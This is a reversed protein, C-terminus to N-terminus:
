MPGMVDPGDPRGPARWWASAPCPLAPCPLAPCPLANALRPMPMAHCPLAHCPMARCESCAAAREGHGRGDALPVQPPANAAAQDRLAGPTCMPNCGPTCTPKCCPPPRTAAHRPPSALRVSRHSGFRRQARALVTHAEPPQQNNVVLVQVHASLPDHPPLQELISVQTNSPASRGRLAKRTLRRRVAAGCGGM